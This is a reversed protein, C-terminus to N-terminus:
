RPMWEVFRGHFDARAIEREAGGPWITLRVGATGRTGDAEMRLWALPTRPTAKRGAEDLSAQIAARTAEPLYQWMITHALVRLTGAPQPAAFRRDVWAAADAQEVHWPAAAAVDLAASARALRETQDAWIYALLRERDPSSRPDLPHVDCGARELVRVPAATDPWAAGRWESRIRVAADAAGWSAAGFEYRYRDFGLNLGMSAGIEYWALPLGIEEGLILAGGLLVSSRAVENTQPPSDLWDHLFDDHEGIAAALASALADGDVANPPYVDALAPSRGARKLAHFGAAARLALADALPDGPWSHIRRGFRSSEDLHRVLADCIEATFPSGLARCAAAQSQFAKLLDPALSTM